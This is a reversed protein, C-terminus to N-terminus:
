DAEIFSKTGEKIPTTPVLIIFKHFGYKKNLEYMLRTYCYTKGTGTEMRVDIGFNDEITKRLERPIEKGDFDTQIEKINNKLKIDSADFIPNAFIDDTIKLNVQEFVKSVRDLCETQHPLISLKIGM